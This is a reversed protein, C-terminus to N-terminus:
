QWLWGMGGTTSVRGTVPNYIWDFSTNANTCSSRPTRNCVQTPQQDLRSTLVTRSGPFFPNGGSTATSAFYLQAASRLSGLESAATAQRAKRSLNVFRPIAVAALIALIALVVVLEILTFGRLKRLM